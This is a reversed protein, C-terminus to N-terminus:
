LQLVYASMPVSLNGDFQSTVSCHQPCSSDLANLCHGMCALLPSSQGFVHKMPTTLTRFKPEVGNLFGGVIMCVAVAAVMSNQPAMVVSMLYGLGSTYWTVLVAVADRCVVSRQQQVQIKLSHFAGHKRQYQLVRM